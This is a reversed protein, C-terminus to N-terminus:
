SCATGQEKVRPSYSQSNVGPSLQSGPLNKLKVSPDTEKKPGHGAHGFSLSFHYFISHRLDGDNQIDM